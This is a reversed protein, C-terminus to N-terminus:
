AHWRRRRGALCFLGAGALAAASPLPIIPGNGGPGAPVKDSGNDEFGRFRVIFNFANPGESFFDAATLLAADDATIKFEFNGTAGVTLGGSPNGGGEFQGGTASAGADFNMGFPQGNVDSIGTFTATDTSLLMASADSDTSNINFIFATLFGGNALPSTNTLSVILSGMDGMTPTYTISGTFDGLGETSNATDGSIPVTDARCPAAALIGASLVACCSVAKVM